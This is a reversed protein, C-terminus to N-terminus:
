KKGNWEDFFEQLFLEMFKHREVVMKKATKTNMNEKLKLLKSYFHHITSPDKESEDFTSRDFSKEPIWMNLGNAGGFSFTRGIGIAWIADLNDADQLILTEIDNVTKGNDSFDYEEHFEICHLVKWKQEEALSTKDLIKKVKPLSDRPSCFKGSEKQIIRHIDHLFASVAIILRNGGEKEQITLANNLVRKLHYIDHGSSETHFLEKVEKELQQIIEEM